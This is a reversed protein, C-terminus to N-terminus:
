SCYNYVIAVTQSMRCLLKTDVFYISLAFLSAVCCIHKKLYLPATMISRLLMIIPFSVKFDPLFMASIIKIFEKSRVYSDQRLLSPLTRSSFIYLLYYQITLMFKSCKKFNVLIIVTIVMIIFNDCPSVGVGSM